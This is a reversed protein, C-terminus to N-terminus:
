PLELRPGGRGAHLRRSAAGRAALLRVSVSEDPQLLVRDVVARDAACLGPRVADRDPQGQRYRLRPRRGPGPRHRATAIAGGRAAVLQSQDGLLAASLAGVMIGISSWLFAQTFAPGPLNWLHTLSPVAVGISNIDYGDCIQVLTCLAAVRIQLPGLRQNELAAEAGSVMAEAM